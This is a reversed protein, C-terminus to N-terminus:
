REKGLVSKREEKITTIWVIISKDKRQFLLTKNKERKQVSENQYRM